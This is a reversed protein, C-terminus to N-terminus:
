KKKKLPKKEEKKPKSVSKEKAPASKKIAGVAAEVAASVKMSKIEPKDAKPAPIPAEASKALIKFIKDLKDNIVRFDERYEGSKSETFTPRSFQPREFNRGEDRRPNEGGKNKFCDSCYVPKGNQPKFPVKCDKGCKECVADTMENM